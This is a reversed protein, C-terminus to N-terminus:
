VGNAVVSIPLALLPGTALAAQTFPLSEALLPEYGQIALAFTSRQEVAERVFRVLDNPTLCTEAIERRQRVICYPCSLNCGSPAAVVFTLFQGSGHECDPEPHLGASGM